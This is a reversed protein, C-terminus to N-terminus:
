HKFTLTLKSHQHTLKFLHETKTVNEHYDTIIRHIVSHVPIIKFNFVIVFNPMVLKVEEALAELKFHSMCLILLNLHVGSYVLLSANDCCLSALYVGLDNYFIFCSWMCNIIYDSVTPIYQMGSNNLILDSSTM